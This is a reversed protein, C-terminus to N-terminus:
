IAELKTQKSRPTLVRRIKRSKMQKVSKLLETALDRKTEMAKLEAASLPKTNTSLTRVRGLEGRKIKRIGELIELGINRETKRITKMMKNLAAVFTKRNVNKLNVRFRHRKHNPTAPSSRSKM